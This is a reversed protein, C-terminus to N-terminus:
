VTFSIILLVFIHGVSHSFINAFLIDSLLNIGLIYLSNLLSSLMLLVFLGTLFHDSLRFLFKELSSMCTSFLHKSIPKVDGFHLDFDCHAVVECREFHRDDFRCYIVLTPSFPSFLSVECVTM